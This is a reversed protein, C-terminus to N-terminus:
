TISVRCIWSPRWSRGSRAYNEIYAVAATSRIRGFSQRRLRASYTPVANRTATTTPDPIAACRRKAARRRAAATRSNLRWRRRGRRASGRRRGPHEPACKLGTTLRASANKPPRSPRATGEYMQACTAPPAVPEMAAFVCTRAPHRPNTSCPASRPRTAGRPRITARSSVRPSRASARPAGRTTAMRTVDSSGAM